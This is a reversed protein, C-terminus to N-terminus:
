SIGLVANIVRQVDVADVFGNDDMDCECLVDLQLVANIVLQVDAADVEGDQNVDGRPFAPVPATEYGTGSWVSFGSLMNYVGTFLHPDGALLASATTSRGGSACYLLIIDDKHEVIESVRSDLQSRPIHYAGPIHGAVFENDRRVDLVLAFDGDLWMDHADEVSIDTVQAFSAPALFAAVLIIGTVRILFIKAPGM